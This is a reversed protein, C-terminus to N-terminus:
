ERDRLTLSGLTIMVVGYAVLGALHKWVGAFTEGEILVKQIPINAYRLPFLFSAAQLWKPLVEVPFILGGLLFAPLLILPISIMAHAERRAFNSVFMALAISVVGLLFVMVFIFPLNGGYTINFMYKSAILVIITQALILLSYGFLYGTLVEHRLYTAMFVRELTGSVRERIIVLTCLVYGNFHIILCIFGIALADMPMFDRLFPIKALSDACIKVIYLTILPGVLLNFVFLNDRYIERAIRKTLAVVHDFARIM